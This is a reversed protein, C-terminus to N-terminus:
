EGKIQWGEELIRATIKQMMTDVQDARLTESPSQFILHFAVSREQLKENTYLDFLDVDALLDSKVADYIAREVDAVLTRADVLISVDRMASPFKQLPSYSSESAARERIMNIDLEAYSTRANKVGFFKAVKKSVEGIVGIMTGDSLQILARRSPHYLSFAYNSISDTGSLPVFVIDILGKEALYNEVMGKLVFFQEGDNKKSTVSAGLMLSEDPLGSDAHPQYLRGTEFLSTGDTYAQNKASARLMGVVLTRRMHSLSADDGDGALVVHEYTDVGVGKADAFSYFSYSRIEDFGSKALYDKTSREFFREANYVPVEINEMLPRAHINEYGYIRGIEEILDEANGLDRRVTPIHCLYVDNKQKVDIWLTELIRRVDTNDIEIGLLRKIAGHELAISWPTVRQAEPYSDTVGEATGHAFERLLEVARAAAQQTLNPDLDREFRYAADTLISHRSKTARVSRADFNAAELVIANTDQTIASGKGGMVGALAIPQSGDTIIIDEKSLTIERDDLLIMVEDSHAQRVIVKPVFDASFAHLPQGTELMVYNTIDVVNNISTHGLSKLRQSLWRPSPAIKIGTVTTASYRNCTPTEIQVEIGANGALAEEDFTMKRGELMAIERAMGRHSLADHGRNPLVDIDLITDNLDLYKTLIEGIPADEDLVMIGGHDKGLNLEDEACIMGASEVGRIKAQKIEFDGPLVAGVLAVAVKQGEAVNPAGCVIQLREEGVDVTVVNLKDADPHKQTGIVLGIVVDELGESQTMVGEVEFAHTILLDAIEQPSKKTQSLEQLWNYSYLM